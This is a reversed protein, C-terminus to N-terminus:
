EHAGGTANGSQQESRGTGRPTTSELYADIASVAEGSWRRRTLKDRFEIVPAYQVKGNRVVPRKDKDLMPKGPPTVWRSGNSEHLTCERVILGSKLALDAFGLLAGRQMPKFHVCQM